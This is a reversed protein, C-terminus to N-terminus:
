VYQLGWTKKWANITEITENNNYFHEFIEKQKQIDKINICVGYRKEDMNIYFHTEEITSIYNKEM